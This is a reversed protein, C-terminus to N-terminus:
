DADRCERCCTSRKLKFSRTKQQKLDFLQLQGYHDAALSHNLLALAEGAAAAAMQAAAPGSIGAPVSEGGGPLAELPGTLCAYCGFERVFEPRSYCFVAMIGTFGTVACEIIDLQRQLALGSLLVRSKLSDTLVLLLDLDAAFETFNDATVMDFTRVCIGANLARIREQLCLAKNQGIQSADYMVQRHLNSLSVADGDALHLTGVGAAALLYACLGGLGGCGAIGVRANSLRERSGAFEPLLEQRAYREADTNQAATM